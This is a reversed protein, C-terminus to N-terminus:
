LQERQLLYEAVADYVWEPVKGSPFLTWYNKKQYNDIAQRIEEHLSNAETIQTM